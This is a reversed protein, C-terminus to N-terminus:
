IQIFCRFGIVQIVKWFLPTDLSTLPPDKFFDGLKRACVFLKYFNKSSWCNQLFQLCHRSCLFNHLLCWVDACHSCFLRALFVAYIICHVFFFFLTSGAIGQGDQALHHVVNDWKIKLVRVLVISYEILTM